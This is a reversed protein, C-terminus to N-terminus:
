FEIKDEVKEGNEDAHNQWCQECLYVDKDVVYLSKTNCVVGDVINMCMRRKRALLQMEVTDMFEYLSERFLSFDVQGEDDTELLSWPAVKDLNLDNLDMTLINGERKTLPM